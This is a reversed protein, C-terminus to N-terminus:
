FGPILPRAWPIFGALAALSLGYLISAKQFREPDTAARRVQAAGIHASAIAFLMILPHELLFYRVPADSMAGGFDRFGQRTLPSFVAFLLLGLLFQIDVAGLFVRTARSEADTWQRRELWGRWVLFVAWIGTLLVIWRVINHLGLVYPYM